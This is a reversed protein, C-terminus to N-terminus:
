DPLRRPGPFGSVEAIWAVGLYDVLITVEILYAQIFHVLM